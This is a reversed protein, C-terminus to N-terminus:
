IGLKKAIVQNMIEYTGGGISFVRSDRFLREVFPNVVEGCAGHLDLAETVVFDCVSTSFNKGMCVQKLINQKQNIGHANHYNFQRVIEIKTAMEALKHRIAQRKAISPHAKVIKISAEFALQAVVQAELALLLREKQFNVMIGMFGKNEEGILNEVPVECDMFAIEATDSAHWGLKEFGGSASFGPTNTEIVLLSIGGVGPGGTRVATTVYDARTGSTIFIKNGNVIYRDGKKVASTELNAVDSGGLPETVGLVAIKEGKIVPPIYKQKQEQTGLALVPPLGISGSGLSSALGVSGGRIIEETFIVDHFFDGPTGGLNEPYGLGLFGEGGTKIYLDRPFTKKKEWEDVYPTVETSVFTKVKERFAAHATNFYFEDM